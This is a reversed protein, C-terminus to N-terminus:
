GFNYSVGISLLDLDGTKTNGKARQWQAVGLLEPRFAYSAGLGVLVGTHTATGSNVTVNNAVIFANNRTLVQSHIRQVGIKAFIAFGSDSVPLIGKGALDYSYMTGTAVQTGGYKGQTHSYNTYGMEAAFYPMFLYGLNINWGFGSGTTSGNVVYKGSHISSQGVNAELYWGDPLPVAASAIVPASTAAVGLLTLACYKMIRKM